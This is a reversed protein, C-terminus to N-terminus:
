NTPRFAFCRYQLQPKLVQWSSLIKNELTQKWLTKFSIQNEIVFYM